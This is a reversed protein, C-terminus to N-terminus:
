RSLYESPRQWCDSSTCFRISHQYWSFNHWNPNWTMQHGTSTTTSSATWILPESKLWKLCKSKKKTMLIKNWCSSV